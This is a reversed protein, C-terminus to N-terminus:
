VFVNFCVCLSVLVCLVCVFCVCCVVGCYMVLFVCLNLLCVRAFVFCLCVIRVVDCLVNCVFCLVCMFVITVFCVPAFM